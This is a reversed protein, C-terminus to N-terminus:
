WQLTWGRRFWLAQLPILLFLLLYGADHWPQAKDNVAFLNNEISNNVAHVDDSNHTFPIMEGHGSEALKSLLNLQTDALGTSSTLGSDPNEGIAWVVMQHAQKSYFDNFGDITQPNTSDTLLLLTSATHAQLLLQTAPKIVSQPLSEPVPLLSTDLVDLFHRIMEKDQTIPMAIHASGAYVVLATKADGRLALLEIIKQKARLLRSPQIDTTQMSKSVDLAIVLVSEDVFFPSAKKTWTPGAMVLTSIVAFAAFLKKPTFQRTKQQNLTLHQIVKASMHERWQHVVDDKEVLSRYFIYLPLLSLLWWPRMFHFQSLQAITLSGFFSSIGKLFTGELLAGDLLSSSLLIVELLTSGLLTCNM